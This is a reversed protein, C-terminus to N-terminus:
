GPGGLGRVNRVVATQRELADLADGLDAQDDAGCGALRLALLQGRQQVVAHGFAHHEVTAQGKAQEGLQLRCRHFMDIHEGARRRLVTLRQPVGIHAKTQCQGIVLNVVQQVGEATQLAVRGVDLQHHERLGVALMAAVFDEVGVEGDVTHRLGLAQEAHNAVGMLQVRLM